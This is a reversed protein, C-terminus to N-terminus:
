VRGVIGQPPSVEQKLGLVKFLEWLVLDPCHPLLDFPDQFPPAIYLPDVIDRSHGVLSGGGSQKEMNGLKCKHYSWSGPFVAM